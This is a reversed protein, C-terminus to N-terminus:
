ELLIADFTGGHYNHRRVAASIQLEVGNSFGDGDSDKECLARTWAHGAAAFDLGFAFVIASAFVVGVM